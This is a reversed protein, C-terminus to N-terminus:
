LYMTRESFHWDSVWFRMESHFFWSWFELWTRWSTSSMRAIWVAHRFSAVTACLADTLPIAAAAFKDEGTLTGVLAKCAITAYTMATPAAWGDM